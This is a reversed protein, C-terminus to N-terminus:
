KAEAEGDGQLFGVEPYPVNIGMSKTLGNRYDMLAQGMTRLDGKIVKTQDIPNQGENSNISSSAIMIPHEVIGYIRKAPVALIFEWAKLGQNKNESNLSDRGEKSAKRTSTEWSKIFNFCKEAQGFFADAEGVTKLLLTYKEGGGAEQDMKQGLRQWEDRLQHKLNDAEKRATQFATIATTLDARAKELDSAAAIDGQVDAEAGLEGLTNSLKTIKDTLGTLDSIAKTIPGDILNDKMSDLLMAAGKQGASKAQDGARGKVADLTMTPLEFKVLADAGVVALAASSVSSVIGKIEAQKAKASNLQETKDKIDKNLTHLKFRATAGKLAATKAKVDSGKENMTSIATNYTNAKATLQSIETANKTSLKESEKDDVGMGDKMAKASKAGDANLDISYLSAAANISAIARTYDVKVVAHSSKIAGLDAGENDLASAYDKLTLSAKVNDGLKEPTVGSGAGSNNISSGEKMDSQEQMSRSWGDVMAAKKAVEEKAYPNVSFTAGLSQQVSPQNMEDKTAKVADDISADVSEKETPIEDDRQVVKRSVGSGFTLGTVAKGAVMADAASDAEHELADNPTSVELKNQRAPAGGSQQVTHAVEHALLHMGFPDEPQYRGESFHIDNGVTYAKAGVAHNAEASASGTHVRVASLDAGLSSEFRGRVSEPLPQGSSSAARDVAAEAGAAVGNADRAGAEGSAERQIRQAAGGSLSEGLARATEPDAVRFVVQPAPTLRSTLTSRGPVSAGGSDQDLDQLAEIQRLLTLDM